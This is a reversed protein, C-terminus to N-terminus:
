QPATSNAAIVMGIVFTVIGIDSPILGISNALELNILGFLVLLPQLIVWGITIGLSIVAIILGM